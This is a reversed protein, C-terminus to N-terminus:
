SVSGHDEKKDKNLVLPRRVNDIDFSAFGDREADLVTESQTDDAFFSFEGQLDEVSIPKLAQDDSAAKVSLRQLTKAVEDQQGAGANRDLMAKSLKVVRDAYRVIVSSDTAEEGKIFCREFTRTLIRDPSLGLPLKLDYLVNLPSKANALVYLHQGVSTTFDVHEFYAEWDPPLMTSSDWFFRRYFSIREVDWRAMPGDHCAWISSQVEEDRYGLFILAEVMSRLKNRSIEEFAKQVFVAKPSSRWDHKFLIAWTLLPDLGEKEVIDPTFELKLSYALAESHYKDRLEELSNPGDPPFFLSMGRMLQRIRHVSFGAYSFAKVARDFPLKYNYDESM